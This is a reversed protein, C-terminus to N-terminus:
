MSSGASLLQGMTIAMTAKVLSSPIVGDDPQSGLAYIATEVGASTMKFVVCCGDLGCYASALGGSNTTGYFNGDSGLVLGGNPEGGDTRGQFFYLVAEAGEPTVM